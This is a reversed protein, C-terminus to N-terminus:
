LIRHLMEAPYGVRGAYQNRGRAAVFKEKIQLAMESPVDRSHLACSFNAIAPCWRWARSVRATGLGRSGCRLTM